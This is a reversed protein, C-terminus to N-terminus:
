IVVVGVVVIVVERGGEIDILRARSGDAIVAGNAEALGALNGADILASHADPQSLLWQTQSANSM